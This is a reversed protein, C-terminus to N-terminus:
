ATRARNVNSVKKGASKLARFDQELQEKVRLAKELMQEADEFSAFVKSLEWNAREAANSADKKRMRAADVEASIRDRKKKIADYACEASEFAAKAERLEQETAM